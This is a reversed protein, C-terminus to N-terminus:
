KDYCSVGDGGYQIVKGLRMRADEIARVALMCQGRQEGRLARDVDPPLDAGEMNLVRDDNKVIARARMELAKLQGRMDNLCQKITKPESTETPAISPDM